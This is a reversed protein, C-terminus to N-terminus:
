ATSRSSKMQSTPGDEPLAPAPVHWKSSAKACCLLKCRGRRHLARAGHIRRAQKHAIANELIRPCRRSGPCRGASATTAARQDTAKAGPGQPWVQCDVGAAAPPPPACIAQTATEQVAMETTGPRKVRPAPQAGEMRPTATMEDALIAHRQVAKLNPHLKGDATPQSSSNNNINKAVM